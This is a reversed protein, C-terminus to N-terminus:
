GSPQLKLVFNRLALDHTNFYNHVKLPVDRVCVHWGFGEQHVVEYPTAVILCYSHFALSEVSLSGNMRETWIRKEEMYMM